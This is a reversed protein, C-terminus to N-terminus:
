SRFGASRQFAGNVTVPGGDESNASLTTQVQNLMKNKRVRNEYGPKRLWNKTVREKM